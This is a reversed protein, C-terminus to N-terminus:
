CRCYKQPHCGWKIKLLHYQKKGSRFVGIKGGILDKETFIADELDVRENNLYLGGGRFLKLVQALFTLFLICLARLIVNPFQPRPLLLLTWLRRESWKGPQCKLWGRTIKSLLSFSTLDSERLPSRAEIERVTLSKLDGGFAVKTAAVAQEAGAAGYIYKTMQLILFAVSRDYTIRLNKRAM